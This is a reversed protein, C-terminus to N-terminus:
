EAKDNDVAEEKAEKELEAVQSLIDALPQRWDAAGEGAQECLMMAHEACEKVPDVDKEVLHSCALLYWVQIDQEDQELLEVLASRAEALLGLDILGRCLAIRVEDSPMETSPDSSALADCIQKVCALSLEKAEDINGQVKRLTAKAVLLELCGSDAALGDKLAAECKGEADEEDCLETMYLEAISAQIAALQRHDSTVASASPKSISGKLRKELVEAGRRYYGLADVGASMQALNLYKNHGSDPDLNASRQLLEIARSQEGEECLLAGFGDLVTVNNSDM